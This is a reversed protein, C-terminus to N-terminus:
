PLVNGGMSQWGTWGGGPTYVDSWTTGNEARGYLQLQTGYRVVVPDAALKGGVSFWSSWGSGPTYDRSWTAGDPARGFIELQAGYQTTDYPTVVPNGVITGGVSQWGSWGQGPTRVDSWVAGDSGRGYVQVQQGYQVAAPDGTIVGGLSAWGSWGKGPTFVNYSTSGDPARGFLELQSGFQIVTPDGTLSGALSSWGSWGSGPTYVATSVSGDPARGFLEIQDGSQQTHYDIAVPDGALEGGLSTWGSWGGGSAKTDTTVSGDAARGFVEIRDGYRIAAPDSTLDGGLSTWGSWGSGPTNVNASVSGDAARGFADVQAGARVVQSSRAGAASANPIVYTTVSQAPLTVPLWGNSGVPVSGVSALNESASTRYATAAAGAAFSFRNLDYSVSESATTPNTAVIVLKDGTPDYATFTNPDDSDIMEYGPRVFKSYNGMVYYRKPFTLEGTGSSAIDAWVLGWLDNINGNDQGGDVAQWIVWASPHMQQENTLIRQSLVLGAAMQSSETGSGWESMWVPKGTQQGLRQLPSGDAVRYDHTNLQTVAAQSAPGYANYDAITGASGLEDPASIGVDDGLGAAALEDHLYGIITNQATTNVNMAQQHGASSWQSLVAENFPEVQTVPIDWSERMHAVVTALYQAYAHYQSSQLNDAGATDAGASCGNVTMWDPASYPIAEFVDAGREKAAQLMWRQNPDQSWDYVGPSQEFSPVAGGLRLQAACRDTPTTAGINYRVVNLGLGSTPSFLADALANKAATSSWGGSGEAWWALSTGWGQITQYRTGPDIEVPITTAAGAREGGALGVPGFAGAVLALVSM